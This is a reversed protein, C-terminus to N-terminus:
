EYMRWITTFDDIPATIDCDIRRTALLHCVYSHGLMPDHGFFRTKLYHIPAHEMEHLTALIASCVEPAADMQAFRELYTINELAFDRIRSEDFIHFGWGRDRAFRWAAKWKPLWERWRERWDEEPKVEVLIPRHGSEREFRLLYDPVYTYGRGNRATFPIKVPQAVVNEVGSFTWRRLFDRELKSEFPIAEGRFVVMGSLSRWTPKIPRTQKFIEECSNRDM